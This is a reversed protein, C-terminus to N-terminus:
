KNGTGVGDDKAKFRAVWTHFVELTAGEPRQRLFVELREQSIPVDCVQPEIPLNHLVELAATTSEFFAEEIADGSEAAFYANLDVWTGDPKLVWVRERARDDQPAIGSQIVLYPGGRAFRSDLELVQVDRYDNTITRLMIRLTTQCRTVTLGLALPAPRPHHPQRPGPKLVHNSTVIFTAIIRTAIPAIAGHQLPKNAPELASRIANRNRFEM